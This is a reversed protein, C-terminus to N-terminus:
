VVSSLLGVSLKQKQLEQSATEFDKLSLNKNYLGNRVFDNQSEFGLLVQAHLARLLNIEEKGLPLFFLRITNKVIDRAHGRSDFSFQSSLSPSNRFSKYFKCVIKLLYNMKLLFRHSKFNFWPNDVDPRLIKGYQKDIVNKFNNLFKDTQNM